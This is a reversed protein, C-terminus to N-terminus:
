DAHAHAVLHLILAVALVIVEVGLLSAPVFVQFWRTICGLALGICALVLALLDLNTRM